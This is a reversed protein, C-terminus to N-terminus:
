ICLSVCIAQFVIDAPLTWRRTGPPRRLGQCTYIKQLFSHIVGLSGGFALVLHPSHGLPTGNAFQLSHTICIVVTLFHFQSTRGSWRLTCFLTVHRHHKMHLYRLICRDWILFPSRGLVAHSTFTPAPNAGM